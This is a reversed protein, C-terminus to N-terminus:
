VTPKPSRMKDECKSHYDAVFRELRGIAVPEGKIGRVCKAECQTEQSLCTVCVAPLANTECIKQYAGEFDEQLIYQIFEPIKVNVPCGNVCPKHKCNLCRSAEEIAMEPTYGLAVEKFNRRREQAPQHPMPTKDPKMNPM